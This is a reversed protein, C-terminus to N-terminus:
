LVASDARPLEKCVTKEDLSFCVKLFDPTSGPLEQDLRVPESRAGSAKPLIIRITGNSRLDNSVILGTLEEQETSVQNLKYLGAPTNETVLNAQWNLVTGDKLTLTGQAQDSNLIGQLKLGSRGILDFSMNGVSAGESQSSFWSTHTQWNETGGCSYALVQDGDIVIAVLADSAEVIGVYMEAAQALSFFSLILILIKQMIDGKFSKVINLSSESSVNTLLLLV